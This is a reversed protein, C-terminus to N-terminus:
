EPLGEVLSRMLVEDVTADLFRLFQETFIVQAYRVHTEFDPKLTEAREAREKMAADTVGRRCIAFSCLGLALDWAAEEDHM